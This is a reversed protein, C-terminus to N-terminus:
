ELEFGSEAVKKGRSSSPTFNPFRAQIPLANTSMEEVDIDEESLDVNLRQLKETTTEQHILSHFLGLSDEIAVWTHAPKLTLPDFRIIPYNPIFGCSIKNKCKKRSCVIEPIVGVALDKARAVYLKSFAFDKLDTVRYGALKKLFAIENTTPKWEFRGTLKDTRYFANGISAVVIDFDEPLYQDNHVALVANPIGLKPALENVKSEGLTRSRMCKVRIESRGNKEKFNEKGALKCEVTLEKGTPLHTVRVDIDHLGSQANVMIKDVQWEQQPLIHQLALMVSFEFAKGRIMPVVKPEYMTDILYQLPINYNQCYELVSRLWQDRERLNPFFQEVDINNELCYAALERGLREYDIRNIPAM